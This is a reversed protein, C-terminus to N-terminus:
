PRAEPGIIWDEKATLSFVYKPDVIADRAPKVQEAFYSSALAAKLADVSDFWFQEVSDFSAEGFM